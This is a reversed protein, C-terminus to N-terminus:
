NTRQKKRRPQDQNMEDIDMDNIDGMTVDGDIDLQHQVDIIPSKWSKFRQMSTKATQIALRFYYQGNPVVIQRGPQNIPDPFVQGNKWPITYNYREQNPDNSNQALNPIIFIFGAIQDTKAEHVSLVGLKVPHTLRFALKPYSEGEFSVSLVDDAEQSSFLGDASVVRPYDASEELTQLTNYNGKLGAYPIHATYYGEMERAPKVVLYGSYIAHDKDNIRPPVIEFPVEVSSGPSVTVRSIAFQVKAVTKLNTPQSPNSGSVSASPLHDLEYTMSQQGLNKILLKKEKQVKKKNSSRYGTDGLEFKSPIIVTRTNLAEYANVLGAGQKAVSYALGTQDPLMAPKATNQILTQFVPFPLKGFKQIMLAITGALYPSAMSTGSLTAYSGRKIPYANYILGGPASVDPKIQLDPGLGWSSFDSPMNATPVPMGVEKELFEVEGERGQIAAAMAEGDEKSVFGVPIKVSKEVAPTLFGEVNNYVIMGIGGANQINSAKVTFTCSGRRVLVIKKPFPKGNFPECADKENAGDESSVALQSRRFKKKTFTQASESQAYGINRDLGVVRLVMKLAYANDFSGVGFGLTAIAPSSTYYLGADGDNGQASVVIVGHKALLNAAQATPYTEYVPGGGLSLNIVDMGDNFAKEMAALILDNETGAGCGFVRYAGLIVGPAVGQVKDDKGGIIGAVHTGHGSCDLPSGGEMPLADNVGYKDGAFDHGFQVQCGKGGVKRCATNGRSFAPHQYDIGTDIVGVKIGEGYAGSEWAKKVGTTDHAFLLSPKVSEDPIQLPEAPRFFRFVPFVNSVTAISAIKEADNPDDLTVSIANFLTTFVRNERLRVKNSEIARRFKEQEKRIEELSGKDATPKRGFQIMFKNPMLVVNEPLQDPARRVVGAQVNLSFAILLFVIVSAQM